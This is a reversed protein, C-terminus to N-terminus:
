VAYLLRALRYTGLKVEKAFCFDQISARNSLIKDCQRRFYDKVLSLDSTRFLIKLAAEEIKQQAPTGDRRVTEIGKADFAPTVNKHNEYKFGVYRKKALL